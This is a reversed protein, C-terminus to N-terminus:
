RASPSRCAAGYSPTAPLNTAWNLSYGDAGGGEGGGILSRWQITAAKVVKGDGLNSIRFHGNTAAITDTLHLCQNLGTGDDAIRANGFLETGSPAQNNSFDFFIQARVGLAMFLTAATSLILRGPPNKMNTPRNM